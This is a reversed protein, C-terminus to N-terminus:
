SEGGIGANRKVGLGRIGANRKVCLGGIGANRLFFDESM